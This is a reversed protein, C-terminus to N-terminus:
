QAARGAVTKEFPISTQQPSPQLLRGRETTVIWRGEKAAIELIQGVGPIHDGRSLQAIKGDPLRILAHEPSAEILTIATLAREAHPRRISGVPAYDIQRAGNQQTGGSAIDVDRVRAPRTPRSFIALHEIGSFEPKRDTDSIMHVAFAMSATALVVGTLGFLADSPESGALISKTARSLRSRM